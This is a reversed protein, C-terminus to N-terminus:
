IEMQEGMKNWRKRISQLCHRTFRVYNSGTLM